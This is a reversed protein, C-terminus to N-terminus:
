NQLRQEGLLMKIGQKPRLTFAPWPTIDQGPVLSFRFKQAITALLLVAEM